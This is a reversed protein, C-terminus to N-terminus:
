DCIAKISELVEFFFPEAKRRKDDSIPNDQIVGEGVLGFFFVVLIWNEVLNTDSFRLYNKPQWTRMSLLQLSTIARYTSEGVAWSFSDERDNFNHNYARELAVFREDEMAVELLAMLVAETNKSRTAAERIIRAAERIREYQPGLMLADHYLDRIVDIPINEYGEPIGCAELWEGEFDFLETHGFFYYQPAEEPRSKTVAM